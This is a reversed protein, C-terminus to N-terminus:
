NEDKIAPIERKKVTNEHQRQEKFRKLKKRKEGGGGGKRRPDYYLIKIRRKKGWNKGATHFPIASESVITWLADPNPVPLFLLLCANTNRFPILFFYFLFFFISSQMMSASKCSATLSLLIINNAFIIFMSASQHKVYLWGQSQATKFNCKIIFEYSHLCLNSAHIAYM